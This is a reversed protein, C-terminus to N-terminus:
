ATATGQLLFVKKGFQLLLPIRLVHSGCLERREVIGGSM